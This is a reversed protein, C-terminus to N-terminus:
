SHNLRLTERLEDTSYIKVKKQGKLRKDNSWIPCKLNLALAFYMFDDADPSIRRGEDLFASFESQPMVSIVEQLTHLTQIYGQKPRQSKQLIFKEHKALEDLIFEPTFLHLRPDFLLDATFGKKILSSFLINADVILKM